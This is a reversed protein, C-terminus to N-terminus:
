ISASLLLIEGETNEPQIGAGVNEREEYTVHKLRWAKRYGAATSWYKPSDFSSM